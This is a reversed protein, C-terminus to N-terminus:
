KSKLISVLPVNRRTPLRPSPVGSPLVLASTNVQDQDSCLSPIDYSEAIFGLNVESPFVSQGHYPSANMDLASEALEFLAPDVNPFDSSAAAQVVAGMNEELFINLEDSIDTRESNAVTNM